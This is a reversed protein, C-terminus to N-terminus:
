SDEPKPAASNAPQVQNNVEVAAGPRLKFVGSTVVEEGATLGSLVAVQDGRSAGLKVVQQRVGTYSTGNPGEIPGVVYVTDGYPAYNIASTPLSIVGTTAGVAITARVFMGPQLRREANTFSARVRVNRTTEDVVSDIATIRGVFTAADAGDTTVQVARDSAATSVQRLRGVEQQPVAFDVFIPDLAQLSAVADGGNLYQGLNVARLGLVGPFPAVIRKRGITARIEGVRAESQDFEAQLRDLEAQSTVGKQRLGVMRDLNVRALKQASEAAALQAREQSTDLEVLLQGKRVAEGSEFAIRQVIGPLDAAVTVGQVAVVSGISELSTPWDEAATVVTTVAEPPPQFAAGQAMAEKIQFFKFSGIGAIFLVMATVVLFMRKKM